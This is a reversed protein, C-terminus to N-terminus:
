REKLTTLLAKIHKKSLLIGLLLIAMIIYRVLIKDYLFTMGIAFMVLVVAVLFITRADFLAIGEMKEDCIKRMFYYHSLGFLIYCILTTYGAAIYGYMRIGFYNLLINLVAGSVSAYAIFKRKRWYFEVNAFVQYMLIFYLSAAVSPIVWVAELYNEGALISICEPALAILIALVVAIGIFLLNVVKAIGSYDKNKLKGYLWPAFSNNLATVAVNLIMAVSYALSYIGAESEGVMNNIMIRDAQNLVTTSLYHPLLPLNFALAVKWIHGDYFRKGRVFNLVYVSGCIVIVTCAHSIIKAEAGMDEDCLLVAVVSLFSAFFANALTLIVLNRYKFEFRQKASWLSLAANALIELFMILILTTNMSFLRNFFTRGFLYVIVCIGTIATILGQISSLYQNRRDEYDLMGNNFGGYFLNLTCFISILSLWSNYVSVVGYQSTTLLRTFIPTTIFSIGRQIFGCITFWVACKAPEALDNYKKLLKQMKNM